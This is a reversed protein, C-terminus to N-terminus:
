GVTQLRRELAQGALALQGFAIHAVPQVDDALRHQLGVDAVVDDLVEHALNGLTREALPHQQAKTRVFFQDVDNMALQDADQAGDVRRQVQCFSPGVIM